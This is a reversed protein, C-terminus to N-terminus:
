YRGTPEIARPGGAAPGAYRASGFGLIPVFIFSLFILGVAFGSGKDFSKALDISVIIHVVLGVFPFWFFFWLVLWWGPRGIIKLFIYIDYVPILVKWGPQGAKTFMFWLAAVEFVVLALVVVVFIGIAAGDSSAFLLASM